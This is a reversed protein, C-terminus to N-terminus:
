RIHSYSLWLNKFASFKEPHELLAIIEDACKEKSNDFTNITIDYTDQPYLSTLQKEAQGIKRDGREKERRRLEDAPCVVHVFLVPYDYLPEIFEYAGGKNFDNPAGLVHDVIINFGMDSYLKVAQPMISVAKGIVIGCEPHKHNIYKKPSMFAFTDAGFAYYVEALREQLTAALTTKGSSSVGNLFIIKGKGM